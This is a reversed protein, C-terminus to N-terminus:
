PVPQVDGASALRLAAGPVPSFVEVQVGEGPYALHANKPAAPDVLLLAGNDTRTLRAGARHALAVQLAATGNKSPYTGVTLFKARPDGAEAGGTLYRIYIRGQPTDTVELETDDRAGLWYVPQSQEGAFDSLQSTSLIQPQGPTLSVKDDGSGCAALFLAVVFSLAGLSIARRWIWTQEGRGM